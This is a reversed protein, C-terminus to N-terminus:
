VSSVVFAVGCSGFREVNGDFRKFKRLGQSILPKCRVVGGFTSDKFDDTQVPSEIVYTKDRCHSLGEVQQGFPKTQFITPSVPNSGAVEVGGTLSDLENPWCIVAIGATAFSPQVLPQVQSRQKTCSEPLSFRMKVAVSNSRNTSNSVSVGLHSGPPYLRRRSCITTQYLTNPGFETACLRM